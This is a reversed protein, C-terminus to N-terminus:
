WAEKGAAPGMDIEHHVNEETVEDLLSELTLAPKIVPSIVIKGDMLTLNVQGEQELGAEAAFPKPIRLALSNGWKQLRTIMFAGRKTEVNIICMQTDGRLYFVCQMTHDLKDNVDKEFHLFLFRM